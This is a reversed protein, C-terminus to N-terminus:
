GCAGGKKRLLFKPFGSCYKRYVKTSYASKTKRMYLHAEGADRSLFRFGEFGRAPEPIILVRIRENRSVLVLHAPRVGRAGTVRRGGVQVTSGVIVIINDEELYKM